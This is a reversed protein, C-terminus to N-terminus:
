LDVLTQPAQEDQFGGYRILVQAPRPPFSRLIPEVTAFLLDADPGYALLTVEGAGFQSGEFEGTRAEALADVLRDELTAVDHIDTSTGTPGSSLQYRAVITHETVPAKSAKFRSLLGM